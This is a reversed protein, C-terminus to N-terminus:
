FKLEKIKAALNEGYIKGGSANPHLKDYFYKEDHPVLTDGHIIRVNKLSASHKVIM